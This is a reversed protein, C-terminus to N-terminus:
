LRRPSEYFILTARVGALEQLVKRRKVAGPPLFGTFLFRGTPLGSVTLAAVAATPGPLSSVPVGAAIAARVLKFGPDSLLPTGADSVLAVSEGSQLRQILRPRARAANRDHYPVTRAAIKYASLLKATVRTDECAIVDVRRLVDLARLTIDALNGIPTAVIFLCGPPAQQVGRDADSPEIRM